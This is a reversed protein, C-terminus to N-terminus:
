HAFIIKENPFFRGRLVSINYAERAQLINAESPIDLFMKYFIRNFFEPDVGLQTPLAKGTIAILGERTFSIRKFSYESFLSKSVEPGPNGM